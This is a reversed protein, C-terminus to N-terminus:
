LPIRYQVKGSELTYTDYLQRATENSADTNWYLRSSGSKVAVAHVADILARGIGKGRVEPDVFLDELYCFHNPAWTSEQFSYHVIGCVGGDVEAVRGRLNHEPDLLRSWTLEYQSDPVSTKYFEIYGSWLALWTEKDDPRLERIITMYWSYHQDVFCLDVARITPQAQPITFDGALVAIFSFVDRRLLKSKQRHTTEVGDEVPGYERNQHPREARIEVQPAEPNHVGKPGNDTEYQISSENKWHLSVEELIGRTKL